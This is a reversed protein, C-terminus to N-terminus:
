RVSKSEHGDFGCRIRRWCRQRADAAPCAGQRLGARSVPKKGSATLYRVPGRVSQYPNAESRARSPFRPGRNRQVQSQSVEGFSRRRIQAPLAKQWRSTRHGELFIEQKAIFSLTSISKIIRIFSDRFVFSSLFGFDSPGFSDHRPFGKLNPSKFKKRNMRSESKKMENAQSELGM